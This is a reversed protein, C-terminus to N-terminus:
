AGGMSRSSRRSSSIPATTDRDEVSSVAVTRSRSTSAPHRRVPARYPASPTSPSCPPSSSNTCRPMSARVPVGLFTHMPPHNPPFGVSAPHSSIEHLRFAQDSTSLHGLVGRGTPLPGIAAATQADIGRHVFEVLGGHEGLVGLAGYQAGTLRCGAEVLRELVTATDLTSSLSVVAGM